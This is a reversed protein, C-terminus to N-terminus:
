LVMFDCAHVLCQPTCPYLEALLILGADKLVLGGKTDRNDETVMPFLRCLFPRLALVPHTEVLLM